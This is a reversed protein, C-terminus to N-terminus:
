QGLGADQWGPQLGRQVGRRYHGTLPEGLHAPADVRRDWLIISKDDSGSALTKGDPSFAVSNVWDSHGTLPEGLSSARDGRGVPHHTKDASGSALTKGDPSFAVSNVRRHPRHPNAWSRRRTRDVRGVPHDDQGCSGSALTKGDPSFAVSTCRSDSHGTLPEFM